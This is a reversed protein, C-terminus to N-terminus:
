WGYNHWDVISSWQYDFISTNSPIINVKTPVGYYAQKPFHMSVGGFNDDKIHFSNFNINYVTAWDVTKKTSESQDKPHRSYVVAQTYAQKWKNFDTESLNQKFVNLMDFMMEKYGNLYLYYICSSTNIEQPYHPAFADLAFQTAVALNDLAPTWIASMPLGSIVQEETYHSKDYYNEYYNVYDDIISKSLLSKDLFFDKTILNYPAGEGPIESPSAIFYECVNRLEYATEINQMNCCDCFIFDLHPMSQSIVKALTPINIWKVIKTGYTDDDKGYARNTSVRNISITDKSNLYGSAHGWLVLGYSQAPYHDTVWKMVEGMRDPDCSYFDTDYKKVTTEGNADIRIISPPNNKTADDMFLILNNNGITKSGQIMEAKDRALIASLDNEAAVYILVTRQAITPPTTENDNSCSSLILIVSLITFLTRKM